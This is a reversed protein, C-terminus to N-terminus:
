LHHQFVIFINWFFFLFLNLYIYEAKENTAEEGHILQSGRKEGKEGTPLSSM